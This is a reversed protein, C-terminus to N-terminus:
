HEIFAPTPRTRRTNEFQKTYKTNHLLHLLTNGALATNWIPGLQALNPGLQAETPGLQPGDTVAPQSTYKHFGRRLTLSVLSAILYHVHTHKDTHKHTHTYTHTHADTHTHTHTHTHSHTHSHTYIHTHTHTHPRTNTYKHQPVYSVLNPARPKGIGWINKSGRAAVLIRVLGFQITSFM